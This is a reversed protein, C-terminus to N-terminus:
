GPAAHGARVPLSVTCPSPCQQVGCLVAHWGPKTSLMLKFHLIKSEYSKSKCVVSWLRCQGLGCAGSSELVSNVIDQLDFAVSKKRNNKCSKHCLDTFGLRLSCAEGEFWAAWCSKWVSWSPAPPLRVAEGEEWNMGKHRESGVRPDGEWGTWTWIRCTEQVSQKHQSSGLERQFTVLLASVRHVPFGCVDSGLPSRGGARPQLPPHICVRM